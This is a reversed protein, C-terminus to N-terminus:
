NKVNKRLKTIISLLEATQPHNKGYNALRVEYAKEFFGLAAM